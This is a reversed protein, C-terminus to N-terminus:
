YIEAGFILLIIYMLKTQPMIRKPHNQSFIEFNWRYFSQNNESDNKSFKEGLAKLRNELEVYSRVLEKFHKYRDNQKQIQIVKNKEYYIKQQNAIKDKNGYYRKLSRVSSCNKCETIKSYIDEIKKIKCQTCIKSEM